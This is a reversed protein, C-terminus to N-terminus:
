RRLLTVHGEDMLSLQEFFDRLAHDGNLALLHAHASLLQEELRAARGLVDALGPGWGGGQVEALAQEAAALCAQLEDAGNVPTRLKSDHRYASALLKVRSAHQLEEEELRSFLAWAEADDRFRLALLGYIAACIAEIREARRFVDFTSPL